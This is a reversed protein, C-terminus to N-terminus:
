VVNGADVFTCLMAVTVIRAPHRSTIHAAAPDLHQLLASSQTEAGVAANEEKNTSADRAQQLSRVSAVLTYSAALYEKLLGSAASLITRIQALTPPASQPRQAATWVDSGGSCQWKSGRANPLPLKRLVLDEVFAVIQVCHSV